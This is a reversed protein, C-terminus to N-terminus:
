LGLIEDIFGVRPFLMVLYRAVCVFGFRELERKGSPFLGISDSSGIV